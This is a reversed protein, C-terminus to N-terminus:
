NEPPAENALFDFAEEILVPLPESRLSLQIGEAFAINLVQTDPDVHLSREAYESLHGLGDNLQATVLYFESDPIHKFKGFNGNFIQRVYQNKDGNPMASYKEMGIIDEKEGPIVVIPGDCGRRYVLTRGHDVEILADAVAPHIAPVGIQEIRTSGARTLTAYMPKAQLKSPIFGVEPPVGSHGNIEMVQQLTPISLFVQAEQIFPEATFQPNNDIGTM